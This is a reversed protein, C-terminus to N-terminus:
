TRKIGPLQIPALASIYVTAFRFTKCPWSFTGQTFQGAENRAEEEEEIARCGM